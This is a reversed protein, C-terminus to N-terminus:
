GRGAVAIVGADRLMRRRRYASFALQDLKIAFETDFPRHGANVLRLHARLASAAIVKGIRAAVTGRVRREPHKRSKQQWNTIVEDMKSVDGGPEGHVIASRLAYLSYVTRQIKDADAGPGLLLAARMAVTRGLEAGGRAFLAELAVAVDVVEDQWQFRRFSSNFARLAVEGRSLSTGEDPLTIPRLTTSLARGLVSLEELHADSLPQGAQRSRTPLFPNPSFESSQDTYPRGSVKRYYAAGTWFWALPRVLRLALLARQNM